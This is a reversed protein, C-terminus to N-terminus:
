IRKLLDYEVDKPKGIHLKLDERLPVLEDLRRGGKLTNKFRIAIHEDNKWHSIGAVAVGEFIIEEGRNLEKDNVMFWRVGSVDYTSGDSVFLTRRSIDNFKM